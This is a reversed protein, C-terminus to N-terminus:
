PLPGGMVIFDALCHPCHGRLLIPRMWFEKRCCWCVQRLWGPVETGYVDPEQHTGAQLEDLAARVQRAIEALSPDHENM